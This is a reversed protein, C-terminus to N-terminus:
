REILAARKMLKQRHKRELDIKKRIYDLEIDFRSSAVTDIASTAVSSAKSIQAASAFTFISSQDTL